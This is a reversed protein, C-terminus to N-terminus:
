VDKRRRRFLGFGALGVDFLLLSSPEPIPTALFGHGGTSDFFSGVIQGANNIGSPDTGFAGPVDIQTFSGGTDLFGGSDTSGSFFGVIQGANNIGFAETLGAGPVDIQTFSGGTEFFGHDRGTSDGFFGVIQGADNIGIANTFSAGPVDIQTFSGNVGGFESANARV